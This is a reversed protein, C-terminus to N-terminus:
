GLNQVPIPAEGAITIRMMERRTGLYDSIPNHLTCRNDWVALSGPRWRFRCTFTPNTAVEYLHHLILDAEDPRLGDIGVVYGPNVFLAPEGTEPHIRVAPHNHRLHADPGYLIEMNEALDNHTASSGYANKPSHVAEVRSLTRKLEPSLSEYALNMNAWMTDGGVDPVDVAYLLTFSPPTAQFSWDSHWAGGFVFPSKEDAEKCVRVVHPHDPIAAIFPDTGFSGWVGAFDEFQETTLDQDRFFVVKHDAAARRIEGAEEDSIRNLTPGFIEAGLSGTLPRVDIHSYAGAANTDASASYFRMWSVNATAEVVATAEAVV